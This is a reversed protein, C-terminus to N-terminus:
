AKAGRLKGMEVWWQVQLRTCDEVTACREPRPPSHPCAEIRYGIRNRWMSVYDAERRDASGYRSLQPLEEVVAAPAMEALIDDYIRSNLFTSAHHVFGEQWKPWEWSLMLAKSIKDYDARDVKLFAQEAKRKNGAVRSGGHAKCATLYATWFETFTMSNGWGGVCGM